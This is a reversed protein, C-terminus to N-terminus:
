QFLGLSVESTNFSPQNKVPSMPNSSSRPNKTIRSRAFSITIRPPSFIPQASTSYAIASCGDTLSTETYPMGSSRSPSIGQAETMNFGLM